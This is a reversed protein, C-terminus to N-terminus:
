TKTPAPWNALVGDRQAMLTYGNVTITLTAGHIVTLARAGNDFASIANIALAEVPDKGSWGVATVIGESTMFGGPTVTYRGSHFNVPDNAGFHGDPTFQMYVQYKAAIPTTKGAHGISVVTWQYGAFSGTNATRSASARAAPQMHAAPSACATISAALLGAASAAVALYRPGPHKVGTLRKGM